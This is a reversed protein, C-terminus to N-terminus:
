HVPGFFIYESVLMRHLRRDADRGDFEIEPRRFLIRGDHELHSGLRVKVLVELGCEDGDTRRSWLGRPFLFWDGKLRVRFVKQADRMWRYFLCRETQSAEWVLWCGCGGDDDEDLLLLLRFCCCFRTRPCFIAAFQQQHKEAEMWLWGDVPRVLKMLANKNNDKLGGCVSLVDYRM